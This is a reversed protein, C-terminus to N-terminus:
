VVALHDFDRDGVTTVADGLFQFLLQEKGIKGRLPAAGSEAEGDDAADDLVVATGDPHLFVLWDACLKNNFQRDHRWRNGVHGGAFMCLMRITSSSDPM